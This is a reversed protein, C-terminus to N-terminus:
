RRLIEVNMEYEADAKLEKLRAPLNDLDEQKWVAGNVQFKLPKENLVALGVDAYPKEENLKNSLEIALKWGPTDLPRAGGGFSIHTLAFYLLWMTCLGIVSVAIFLKRREASDSPILDRIAM